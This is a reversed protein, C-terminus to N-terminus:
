FRVGNGSEDEPKKLLLSVLRPMVLILCNALLLPQVLGFMHNLVILGAQTCLLIAMSAPRQPAMDPTARDLLEKMFDLIRTSRPDDTPNLLVFGYIAYIYAMSFSVAVYTFAMGYVLVSLPNPLATKAASMSFFGLDIGNIQFVGIFAIALLYWIYTVSWTKARSRGLLASAAGALSAVAFFPVSISTLGGEPINSMAYWATITCSLVHYRTTVPLVEPLFVLTVGFVLMCASLLMTSNDGPSLNSAQGIAFIIPPLLVLALLRVPNKRVTFILLLSLELVLGGFFAAILLHRPDHLIGNLM